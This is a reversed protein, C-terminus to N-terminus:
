ARAQHREGAGEVERGADGRGPGRHAVGARAEERSAGGSVALGSGAVMELGDVVEPEDAVLQLVPARGPAVRVAEAGLRVGHQVELSPREAENEPRQLGE